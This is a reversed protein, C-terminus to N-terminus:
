GLKKTSRGKLQMPSLGYAKKFRYSFYNSDNFGCAFAVDAVSKGNEHRLMTEARSLRLLNVYENFGIGTERKVTRSLHEATVGCAEAAQALSVDRMYNQKIYGIARDLTTDKEAKAINERKHRAILYLLRVTHLSLLEERYESPTAYERDILDFIETIEDFTDPARFVHDVDSLASLLATPLGGTDFSIVRRSRVENKYYARHSEGGPILILDGATLSFYRHDVFYTCTGKELFYIEYNDHSHERTSAAVV